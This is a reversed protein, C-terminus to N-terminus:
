YYWIPTPAPTIPCTRWGNWGDMNNPSYSSSSSVTFYSSKMKERNKLERIAKKM